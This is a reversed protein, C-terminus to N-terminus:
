PVGTALSESSVMVSCFVNGFVFRVLLIVLFLNFFTCYCEYYLAMIAPNLVIYM